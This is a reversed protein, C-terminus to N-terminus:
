LPLWVWRFHGKAWAPKLEIVTNADALAEPFMHLGTYACARNSYLVHLLEDRDAPSTCADIGRTFVEISEELKGSIQWPMKLSRSSRM